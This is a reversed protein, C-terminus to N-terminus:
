KKFAKLAASIVPVLMQPSMLSAPNRIIGGIQEKLGRLEDRVARYEAQLAAAEMEIDELTMEQVERVTALEKSDGGSRALIVLVGALVFNILAVVLAALASSVFTALWFFAALDLMALGFLAVIAAGAMMGSKRVLGSLRHESIIAQTRWLVKLNRTMNQM